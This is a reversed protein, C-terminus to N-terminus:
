HWKATKYPSTKLVNVSANVLIGQTKAPRIDSISRRNSLDSM